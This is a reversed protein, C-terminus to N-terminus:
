ERGLEWGMNKAFTRGDESLTGCAESRQIYEQVMPLFNMPNYADEEYSWLGDGAYHLITIVPAQLVTGDGPDRMRNMFEVFVWGKEEDISYWTEPYFPMESGPFANMQAVIWNRIQERGKFHGFSHEVYTADETFLDAYRSWDWSQGIEAVVQQQQKFAQELEQRSWRNESSGMPHVGEARSVLVREVLGMVAGADNDSFWLEAERAVGVDDAV